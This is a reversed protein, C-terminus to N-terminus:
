ILGGADLGQNGFDLTLLPLTEDLNMEYRRLLQRPSSARSEEFETTWDVRDDLRNLDFVRRTHGDGPNTPANDAEWGAFM